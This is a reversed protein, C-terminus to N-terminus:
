RATVLGAEATSIADLMDVADPSEELARVLEPNRVLRTLRALVHLHVGPTPLLLLFFLGTLRGHPAGFPIPGATRVLLLLDGEMHIRRIDRPHPFAVGNELATSFVQEREELQERLAQEDYTLYTACALEALTRLLSARTRATVMPHIRGGELLSTVFQQSPDLGASSANSYDVHKLREVTLSGFESELWHLLEDRRYRPTGNSVLPRLGSKKLARETEPLSLGLCQAVDVVTVLNEM